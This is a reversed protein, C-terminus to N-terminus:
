HLEIDLSDEPSDERNQGTANCESRYHRIRVQLKVNLSLGMSVGAECEAHLRVNLSTIWVCKCELLDTSSSITFIKEILFQLSKGCMRIMNLTYTPTPSTLKGNLCLILM